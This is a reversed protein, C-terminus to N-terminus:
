KDERRRGRTRGGEKERERARENYEYEDCTMCAAPGFIPSASWFM